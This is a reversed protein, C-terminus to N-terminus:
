SVSMAITPRLDKLLKGATLAFLAAQRIGCSNELKHAIASYNHQDIGLSTALVRTLSTRRRGPGPSFLAINQQHFGFGLFLILKASEIVEDIKETIDNDEMQETFTRINKSITFLDRRQAEGYAVEHRSRWDLKGLSGYPRIVNLSSVVEAASNQDLGARACLAWFIFQEITRDYNFNIFTINKFVSAAEGRHSAALALSLFQGLWSDISRAVDVLNGAPDLALSSSREAALIYHAIALKGLDIIERRDRWWFLAEDISPFTEITESLENGARTFGNLVDLDNEAHRKLVGLLVDDGSVQRSFDFRFKLGKAIKQKLADGTPLGFEASAGAGVVIVTSRNFM